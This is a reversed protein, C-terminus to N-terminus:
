DVEGDGESAMFSFSRDQYRDKKVQLRMAKLTKFPSDVSTSNALWAPINGNPDAHLEYEVKVLGHDEPTFKWVGQSHQIRIMHEKEPIQDPLADMLVLLSNNSEDYKYQFRFVADRDTVPWPADTVIYHIQTSKNERSILESKTTLNMWETFSGVDYLVAALSSVPANIRTIARFAEFNSGEVKKTYVDIGEASKRLKWEEQSYTSASCLILFVLALLTLSHKKM